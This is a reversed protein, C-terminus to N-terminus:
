QATPLSPPPSATSWAKSLTPRTIARTALLLRLHHETEAETRRQIYIFFYAGFGVVVVLMLVVLRRLTAGFASGSSLAM